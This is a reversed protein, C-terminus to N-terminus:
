FMFRDLHYTKGAELEIPQDRHHPVKQVRFRRIQSQLRLQLSRTSAAQIVVKKLQKKSWEMDILDGAETTLRIFRGSHFEKPLNPLFYLTEGEEYFFLREIQRAGEHIIGLPSAGTPVKIEPIIGLYKEDRLRPCLIGEFAAQFTLDLKGQALLEAAPVMPLAMEPIIQALRIWFPFIEAMDCRRQILEWDQKKHCGLSLRKQSSPLDARKLFDYSDATIFVKGIEIQGRELDDIVTFRKPAAVSIEEKKDSALDRFILKTPFIRVEWTTYPVMCCIGPQHSFPRLKTAIKIRM